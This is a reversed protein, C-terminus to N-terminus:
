LGSLTLPFLLNLHTSFFNLLQLLIYLDQIVIIISTILSLVISGM